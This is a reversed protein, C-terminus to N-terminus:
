SRSRNRRQTPPPSPQQSATRPRPTDSAPTTRPSSMSAAPLSPPTLDRWQHSSSPFGGFLVIKPTRPDGAERYFVNHGAVAASRYKVSTSM